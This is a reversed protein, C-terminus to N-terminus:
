IKKKEITLNQQTQIERWPEQNPRTRLWDSHEDVEGERVGLPPHAHSTTWVGRLSKHRHEM